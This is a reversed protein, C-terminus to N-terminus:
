HLVAFQTLSEGAYTMGACARITELDSRHDGSESQLVTDGLLGSVFSPSAQGTRQCMIILNTHTISPCSAYNRYGGLRSCVARRANRDRSKALIKSEEQIQCFADMRPCIKSISTLSVLPFLLFTRSQCIPFIDVFFAGPVAAKSMGDLATEAVQVYRDGQHHIELGYTINM